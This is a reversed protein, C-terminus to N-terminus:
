LAGAPMSHTATTITANALANILGASAPAATQAAPSETKATLMAAPAAPPKPMDGFIRATEADRESVLEVSDGVRVRGFLDEIDAKGMRICGHSAAKGISSPVNTGHIGFGHINLGMWRDGVPNGPGPPIVKGHHYYTPNVVRDAITYAGAPSPTSPKGVAVRYVKVVQGNEILALKRDRLSVVITRTGATSSNPTAVAQRRVTASQQQTEVHRDGGLGFAQAAAMAAVAAGMAARSLNLGKM